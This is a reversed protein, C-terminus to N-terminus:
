SYFGMIGLVLDNQLRVDVYSKPTVENATSPDTNVRLQEVFIKDYVLGEQAYNISTTPKTTINSSLKWIGDTADKSFAAWKDSGSVNYEGVFAFDVLNSPNDSAVFIMPDTVAINETEVTTGGGAFTITGSISVDGAINMDGQIGVGGVVTVAGTQPSVSPTPIEVHVNVDPTIEVQTNGSAYGGAAIIVKNESGTDGTAIVFNGKGYYMTASGSASTSSVDSATKAYTFTTTTPTTAIQYTGNFTSDVGTIKVTKGIEYGHASSTTLTAVNNLLGKNTITKTIPNKAATFIYGDHPGTIGYTADDFENGTMGLGTWGTEDDGNSSYIIIDGSSTADANTFAIQAYSSAETNDDFRLVAIANTLGADTEFDTSDPGVFLKATTANADGNLIDTVLANLQTQADASAAVLDNIGLLNGLTELAKAVYVLDQATYSAASLSSTIESKVADIQTNLAAYNPM